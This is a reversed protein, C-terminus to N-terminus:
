PWLSYHKRPTRAERVEKGKNREERKGRKRKKREREQEKEEGRLPGWFRALLRPAYYAGGADPASGSQLNNIYKLPTV